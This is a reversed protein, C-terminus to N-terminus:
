EASALSDADETVVVGKSGTVDSRIIGQGGSVSGDGAPRLALRVIGYESAYVFKEVDDKNIALTVTMPQEKLKETTIRTDQSLALVRVNQLITKTIRPYSITKTGYVEEEREFSAVIDVYDGPRLLNAVNVEETIDMSVARTGEPIAYTFNMSEEDALRETRIFEGEIISQLARKGIAQDKDTVINESFLEKAVEVEKIDSAAIKTHEPITRAAAYIKIYETEPTQEPKIGSIYIYILVATILSLTLSIVLMKRSKKEM